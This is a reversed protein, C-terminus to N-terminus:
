PANSAALHLFTEPTEIAFFHLVKTPFRGLFILNAVLNHTEGEGEGELKVKVMWREFTFSMIQNGVPAEPDMVLSVKM